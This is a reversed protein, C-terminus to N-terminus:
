RKRKRVEKIAKDIKEQTVGKAKLKSGVRDWLGDIYAGIDHEKVYDEILERLMQSTTTGTSKALRGLRNKLEADIRVIMQAQM